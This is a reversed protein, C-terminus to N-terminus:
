TAPPAKNMVCRHPCPVSYRLNSDVKASKLRQCQSTIIIIININGRNINLQPLEYLLIAELIFEKEIDAAEKIIDVNKKKQIKKLIDETSTVM